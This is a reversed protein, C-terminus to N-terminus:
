KKDILAINWKPKYYKILKVELEKIEEVNVVPYIWFSINKYYKNVLSNIHCNTQQGDKYCNKPSIRGYGNNIRKYFSDCCRGIYVIESNLVYFYIGKLKWTEKDSIKFKCYEMDGYKNLFLKYKENGKIKLSELFLGLPIKFGDNFEELNLSQYKKHKLTEFLTKNNKLKFLDKLGIDIFDLNVNKLQLIKEEIKIKM